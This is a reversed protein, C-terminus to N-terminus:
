SRWVSYESLSSVSPFSWIRNDSLFFPRAEKNLSTLTKLSPRGRTSFILTTMDVTTKLPRRLPAGLHTREELILPPFGVGFVVWGLLFSAAKKSVTPLKRSM